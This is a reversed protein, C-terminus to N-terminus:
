KGGLKMIINLTRELKIKRLFLKLVIVEAKPSRYLIKVIIYLFM